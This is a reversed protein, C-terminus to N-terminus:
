AKSAAPFPSLALEPRESTRPFKGPVNKKGFASVASGVPPVTCKLPSVEKVGRSALVFEWRRSVWDTLQARIWLHRPQGIENDNQTRSHKVATIGLWPYTYRLPYKLRNQPTSKPLSKIKSNFRYVRVVYFILRLSGKKNVEFHLNQANTHIVPIHQKNVNTKSVSNFTDICIYYIIKKPIKIM